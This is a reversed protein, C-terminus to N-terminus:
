QGDSKGGAIQDVDQNGAGVAQQQAAAKLADLLASGEIYVNRGVKLTPLGARRLLSFSHRGMGLRRKAEPLRYLETASIYGPVTM